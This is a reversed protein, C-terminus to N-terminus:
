GSKNSLLVNIRPSVIYSAIEKLFLGTMGPVYSGPLKFSINAPPRDQLCFSVASNKLIRSFISYTLYTDINQSRQKMATNSCKELLCQFFHFPFTLKCFFHACLHLSQMATSSLRCYLKRPEVSCLGEPFYLFSGPSSLITEVFTCNSGSYLAQPIQAHGGSIQVYKYASTQSPFQENLDKLEGLM